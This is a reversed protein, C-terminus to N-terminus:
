AGDLEAAHRAQYRFVIKGDASPIKVVDALDAVAYGVATVANDANPADVPEVLELWELRLDGAPIPKHLRCWTIQKGKFDKQTVAGITRAAAIASQYAAQDRFKFCLHSLAPAASDRGQGARFAAIGALAYDGLATAAQAILDNGQM